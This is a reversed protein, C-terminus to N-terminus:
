EIALKLTVISKLEFLYYGMDDMEFTFDIVAHDFVDAFDHKFFSYTISKDFYSM